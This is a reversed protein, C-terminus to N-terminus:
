EDDDNWQKSSSFEEDPYNELDETYVEENSLEDPDIDLQDHSTESKTFNTLDLDTKVSKPPKPPKPPPSTRSTTQSGQERQAADVTSTHNPDASKGNNDNNKSEFNESKAEFTHGTTISHGPMADTREIIQSALLITLVM